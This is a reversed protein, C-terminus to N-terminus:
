SNILHLQGNGIVKIGWFYSCCNFNLTTNILRLISSNVIITYNVVSNNNLWTTTENIIIDNESLNLEENLRSIGVESGNATQVTEPDDIPNTIIINAQRFKTDKTAVDGNIKNDKGETTYTIINNLNRSFDDRRSTNLDRLAPVEIKQGSKEDMELNKLNDHYLFNVFPILLIFTFMILNFIQNIQKKDM